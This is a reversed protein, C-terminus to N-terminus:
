TVVTRSIVSLHRDTMPLRLTVKTCRYLIVINHVTQIIIDRIHANTHPTLAPSLYTYYLSYGFVFYQIYFYMCYVCDCRVRVAAVSYIVSIKIPYPAVMIYIIYVYHVPPITHTTYYYYIISSLSSAFITRKKNRKRRKTERERQWYIYIYLCM